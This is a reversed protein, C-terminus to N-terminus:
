KKKILKRVQMALYKAKIPIVFLIYFQADPLTMAFALLFSMYLSDATLPLIKHGILYVLLSVVVNALLGIFVYLNFYFTGWLRELNSGLSWFIFCELLFWLISVSPPYM